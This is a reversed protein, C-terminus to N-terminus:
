LKVSSVDIEGSMLKPLLTDRLLALEENEMGNAYIKSFVTQCVADFKEVLDEPAITIPETEIFGNIDLNKIGTTGNEYSFFINRDYLYQWYYYVYMSYGARPKIAKCFNTCVMGKDYRALLSDSVAAARGTSQTPSGGSIEVVIDGDVLQKAAYNKPLIYRTPMKGKNGARVEPIDAGRICYVMETNNGSPSDKGWDGSITKEILNSFTGEKWSIADPNDVFWKKFLAQTQRELNENIARNIAIKEDLLRLGDGIKKQFVLDPLDFSFNGITSASINPQASNSDIHNFVYQEFEKQKLVYYLYNKDVCKKNKYLLVRQNVYACGRELHGIKGITAGTMALVYDGKQAIFKKLKSIDYKDIDIGVLNDMDVTPPTIHTIKIVKDKFDGFDKGRFAYGPVLDCVESLFVKEYKM